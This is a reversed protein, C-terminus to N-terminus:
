LPNILFARTYDFLAKFINNFRFVHVREETDEGGLRM